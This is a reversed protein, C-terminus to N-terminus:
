QAPAAEQKAPPSVITLLHDPLPRQLARAEEWPATLWAEIEEPETLLVPMAKPHIPGIPALYDAYVDLSPQLNGASDEVFRALQRTAGQNSTINYLNCM